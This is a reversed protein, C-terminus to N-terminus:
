LTFPRFWLVQKLMKLSLIQFCLHRFIEGDVSYITSVHRVQLRGQPRDDPDVEAGVERVHDHLLGLQDVVDKGDDPLVALVAMPKVKLHTLKEVM